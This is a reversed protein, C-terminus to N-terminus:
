GERVMGVILELWITGGLRLHLGCARGLRRKSWSFDLDSWYLRACCLDPRCWLDPGHRLLLPWSLGLLLYPWRWLRLRLNSRRRLRLVTRGRFILRSWNRLSLGPWDRFALGSWYWLSLGPRNLRLRLGLLHLPRLWSLSRRLACSWLKMWLGLGLLTGSRLFSRRLSGVPVSMGM